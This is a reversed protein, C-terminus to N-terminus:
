ESILYVQAQELNISKQVFPKYMQYIKICSNILGPTIWPKRPARKGKVNHKILPFCEEFVSNFRISFNNFPENTDTSSGSKIINVWNDAKILDVFKSKAADSFTRNFACSESGVSHSTYRTQLAVPM